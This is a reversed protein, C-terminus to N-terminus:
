AATKPVFQLSASAGSGVIRLFVWETACSRHEVYVEESICFTQMYCVDKARGADWHLLPGFQKESERLTHILGLATVNFRRTGRSGDYSPM